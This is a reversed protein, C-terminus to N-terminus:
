SEGAAGDSFVAISIRAVAAATPPRPTLATNKSQAIIRGCFTDQSTQRAKIAAAVMAKSGHWTRAAPPAKATSSASIPLGPEHLTSVQVDNASLRSKAPLAVGAQTTSKM